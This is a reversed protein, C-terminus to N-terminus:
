IKDFIRQSVQKTYGAIELPSVSILDSSLGAIQRWHIPRKSISFVVLAYVWFPKWWVWTGDEMRTPWFAFKQIGQLVASKVQDQNM